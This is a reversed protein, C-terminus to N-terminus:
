KPGNGRADYVTHCDSERQADVIEDGRLLFVYTDWGVYAGLRNKANIRTFVRWGYIPSQLTSSRWGTKPISFDWLASTPDYLKFKFYDKITEQPHEPKPGYDAAFIEEDTPAKALTACGSFLGGVFVLMAMSLRIKM